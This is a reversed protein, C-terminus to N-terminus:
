KVLLQPITAAVSDNAPPQRLSGSINNPTPAFRVVAVVTLMRTRTKPPQISGLSFLRCCWRSADMDMRDVQLYIGCIGLDVVPVLM